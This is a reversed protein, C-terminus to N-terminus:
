FLDLFSQLKLVEFQEPPTTYYPGDPSMMLYFHFLTITPSRFPTNILDRSDWKFDEDCVYTCLCPTETLAVFMAMSQEISYRIAY